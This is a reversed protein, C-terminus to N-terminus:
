LKEAAPEDAKPDEFTVSGAFDFSSVLIHEDGVVASAPSICFGRAIVRYSRAPGGLAGLREQSLEDV